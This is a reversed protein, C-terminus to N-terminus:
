NIQAKRMASCPSLKLSRRTSTSCSRIRAFFRRTSAVTLRLRCDAIRIVAVKEVFGRTATDSLVAPLRLALVLSHFCAELTDVFPCVHHERLPPFLRPSRQSSPVSPFACSGIPPSFLMSTRCTIHYFFPLLHTAPLAWDSVISSSVKEALAMNHDSNELASSHTHAGSPSPSM